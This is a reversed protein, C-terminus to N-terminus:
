HMEWVWDGEIVPEQFPSDDLPNFFIEQVLENIRQTAIKELDVERDSDHKKIDEVVRGGWCMIQHSLYDDHGPYNSLIHFLNDAAEQYNKFSKIEVKRDGPPRPPLRLMVMQPLEEAIIVGANPALGFM